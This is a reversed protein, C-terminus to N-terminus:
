CVDQYVVTNHGHNLILRFRHHAEDIIQVRHSFRVREGTRTETVKRPVLPIGNLSVPRATTAPAYGDRCRLYLEGGPDISESRVWASAVPPAVVLIALLATALRAYTSRRYM